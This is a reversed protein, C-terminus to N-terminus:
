ASELDSFRYVQTQYTMVTKMVGGYMKVTAHWSYGRAEDKEDIEVVPITKVIDGFIGNLLNRFKITVFEIFEADTMSTTGTCQRWVKAGIKEITCLAMMAFYSNLVSTDNDYVTQVAPVQFNARDYPQAWILGEDWLTPKVGSPIFEPQINIMNDVLNGPYNDFLAAVDWLGTTKGMMKAAKTLLWYTGPVPKETGDRLEGTFGIIVGRCVGTGFYTSEPALKLRNGLALAVARRESLPVNKNGDADVHTALAISTDKRLAIFNILQKKTELSFGSDYFVSEVNIALDHYRSESDLYKKMEAVVGKEFEEDSLTGDNGGSLFTPTEQSVNIEKQNSALTPNEDAIAITFYKVSKSTRATFPNLMLYEESEIKDLNATSFDYWGFTSANEGDEWTRETLSVYQKEKTIRKKCVEEYNDAYFHIGEYDWFRISKLSDTENFWNNKFVYDFDMRMETSPNVIKARPCFVVSTEGFLSNFVTPSSKDDDRTYLSLSFLMSKVKAALETDLNDGTLSNISFGINDYDKGQNKAIAQFLPYMKSKRITKNGDAGIIEISQVGEKIELSGLDKDKGAVESIFKIKYGSVTPQVPDVKYDNTNVDAVLNGNSDRLYNPVNAELVDIYIAINSRAGADSPVIRKTMCNNPIGLATVAFKSAHNFYDSNVEFTADGYVNRAKTADVIIRDTTGKKAFFMFLPLHQPYLEEDPTIVRTSKDEAGLMIIQPSANKILSM